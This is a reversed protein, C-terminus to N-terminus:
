ERERCLVNEDTKGGARADANRRHEGASEAAPVILEGVTHRSVAQEEAHAAPNNHRDETHEKGVGEDVRLRIDLGDAAVSIRIQADNRDARYKHIKLDVKLAKQLGRALRLEGHPRLYDARHCVDNKVREKDVAPAAQGRQAGGAGGDGRDDALREARQRAKQKVVFMILFDIDTKGVAARVPVDDEVDIADAKRGDEHDTDTGKRVIEHVADEHRERGRRDRQVACVELQLAEEEHRHESQIVANDGDDAVVVARPFFFANVPRDAVAHQIGHADKSDAQQEKFCDGTHQQLRERRRLVHKGDANGRQALDGDM